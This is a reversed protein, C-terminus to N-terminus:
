VKCQRNWNKECLRQDILKNIPESISKKGKRQIKGYEEQIDEYSINDLIEIVEIWLKKFELDNEFIIQANRFSHIKYNM